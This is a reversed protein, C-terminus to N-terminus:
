PDRGPADAAADVGLEVPDPIPRGRHRQSASYAIRRARMVSGLPRHEEIVHWPHFYELDIQQTQSELAEPDLDQQPIVLRGVTEWPADWVKMSEEIPTDQENRFFQLRMEFVVPGGRLRAELDQKLWHKGAPIRAPREVTPHFQFKAAYPGIRIPAGSWYDESALSRIRRTLLRGFVQVARPYDRVRIATPGRWPFKKYDAATRLIKPVSRANPAPFTESNLSTFDQVRGYHPDPLIARGPVELLKLSLGWIDPVRDSTWIGLGRSFRVFGRYVAGPVFIGHAAHAPLEEAVELRAPFGVLPVPHFVRKPEEGFFGKNYDQVEKVLAPIRQMLEAEGELPVERWATSPPAVPPRARGASPLLTALATTLLLVKRTM